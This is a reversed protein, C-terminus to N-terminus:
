PVYLVLRTPNHDTEYNLSHVFVFSKFSVASLSHTNQGQQHWPNTVNRKLWTKQSYSLIFLCAEVTTGRLFSGMLSLKDNVVQLASSIPKCSSGDDMKPGDEYQVWEKGGTSSWMDEM